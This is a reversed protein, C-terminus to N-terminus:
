TPVANLLSVEQEEAAADESGKYLPTGYEVEVRCVTSQVPVHITNSFVHISSQCGWPQPERQRPPPIYRSYLLTSYLLTSYIRVTYACSYFM